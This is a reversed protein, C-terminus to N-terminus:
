SSEKKSEAKEEEKAKTEEEDDDDDDDDGGALEEGYVDPHEKFCKQMERFQDICDLGKPEATSYVFCSFAAKFTEGCPPKTMGAICPCDWNIEGTEPNYADEQSQQAPQSSSSSATTSSALKEADDKTIFYITDKGDEEKRAYSM